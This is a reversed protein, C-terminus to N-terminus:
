IEYYKRNIFEEHLPHALEYAQPHAHQKDDRLIFFNEWDSLFGCMYLETKLALPLVERAQEPKWGSKILDLYDREANNLNAIFISESSKDRAVTHYSGFLALKEDDLWCPKIFTLENDFKDKSYNCYRTSEAIFSFKRHRTFEALIGRDCIFKVCIRQEHYETPKCLYKLDDLWNNEILVRMNTTVYVDNGHYNVRSYENDTYKNLLKHPAIQNCKHCITGIWFFQLYVTGFELCSNHGWNIIREVFNKASDEKITHESKHSVKGALEISKYIDDIIYGTPEIISYSPKILKM